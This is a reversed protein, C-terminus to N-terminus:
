TSTKTILSVMSDLLSNQDKVERNIDQTMSKLMSVQEGLELWRM